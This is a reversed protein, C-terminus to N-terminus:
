KAYFYRTFHFFFPGSFILMDLRDLLGGQRSLLTGYDKVGYDRKIASMILSGFFGIISISLGMAISAIITFPTFPALGVSLISVGIMSCVLGLWTKRPTVSPVILKKGFYSNVVYHCIDSCAVILLLYLILNGTRSDFEQISLWFIAPIHSVFYVGIMLGWQISATRSLFRHTDRCSVLVAPIFVFGYVPIFISYFGYWDVGILVYQLPTIIVFSWFLARHDSRGTDLLSLYERLILFSVIFFIFLTPYLGGLTCAILILLVVAWAYLRSFLGREPSSQVRLHKM